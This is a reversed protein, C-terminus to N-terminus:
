SKSAPTKSSIDARPTHLSSVYAISSLLVPTLDSSAPFDPFGFGFPEFNRAYLSFLSRAEHSTLLGLRIADLRPDSSGSRPSPIAIAVRVTVLATESAMHRNAINTSKILRPLPLSGRARLAARIPNNMDVTTLPQSVNEAMSFSTLDSLMHTTGTGLSVAGVTSSPRRTSSLSAIDLHPAFGQISIPLRNGNGIDHQNQVRSMSFSRQSGSPTMSASMGSFRSAATTYRAVDEGAGEAVAKRKRVPASATEHQVLANIASVLKSLTEDTKVRWEDQM